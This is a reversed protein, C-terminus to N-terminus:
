GVRRLGARRSLIEKPFDRQARESRRGGLVGQRRRRHHDRGQDFTRTRIKLFADVLGTRVDHGLANMRDPRNITVIAVHGKQEFLVFDSM